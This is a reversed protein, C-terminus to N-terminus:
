ASRPWRPPQMTLHMLIHVYLHRGDFGKTCFFFPYSAAIELCKAHRLNEKRLIPIKLEMRKGQKLSLRSFSGRAKGKM